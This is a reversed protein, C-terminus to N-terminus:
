CPSLSDPCCALELSEPNMRGCASSERGISVSCKVVLVWGDRFPETGNGLDHGDFGWKGRLLGSRTDLFRLFM